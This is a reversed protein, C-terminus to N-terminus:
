SMGGAVGRVMGFFMTQGGVAQDTGISVAAPWAHEGQFTHFGLACGDMGDMGDM